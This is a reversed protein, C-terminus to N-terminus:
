DLLRDSSSGAEKKSDKLAKSRTRREAKEEVLDAVLRLLLEDVTVKADSIEKSWKRMLEGPVPYHNQPNDRLTSGKVWCIRGKNKCQSSRCVWREAIKPGPNGTVSESELLEGLNNLQQTTTSQRPARGPIRMTLPQSASQPTGQVLLPPETGNFYCTLRLIPQFSNNQIEQLLEYVSNLNEGDKIDCKSQDQARCKEHTIVAETYQYSLNLDGQYAIARLRGAIL